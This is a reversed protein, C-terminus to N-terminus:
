VELKVCIITKYGAIAKWDTASEAQYREGNWELQDASTGRSLDKIDYTTSVTIYKKQLDLGLHEYVSRPVAQVNVLMTIPTAFTTVWERLANLARSAYPYLMISQNPLVSSTLAHINM